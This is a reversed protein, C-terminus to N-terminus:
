TQCYQYTGSVVGGATGTLDYVLFPVADDYLRRPSGPPLSSAVSAIPTGVTAIVRYAVLSIAGTVLSTGLTISQVSRVGADGAQLSFPLFTGAVATAPFSTMTATRGSTGSSNTYSMTMNTFAGANTTATTVEVAILVDVGATSGSYDRAGFTTSTVTQATTTTVVVGSNHWLRDCFSVAGVNGGQSVTFDALYVAAGAVTAPVSLQGAYASPASGSLGSATPNAAGPKGATYFSSFPVGAAEGTFSTKTYSYAPLLGALYDDTGTIAM